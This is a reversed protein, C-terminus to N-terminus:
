RFTMKNSETHTDSPAMMTEYVYFLFAIIIFARTVNIIGIMDITEQKSMRLPAIDSISQIPVLKNLPKNNEVVVKSDQLKSLIESAPYVEGAWADCVVASEGWTEIKELKANSDLGIILFVHDGKPLHFIASETVPYDRKLIAQALYSFETCNGARFMKAFFTQSHQQIEEFRNFSPLMVILWTLIESILRLNKIKMKANIRQESDFDNADPHTTSLTLISRVENAIHCAINLNDFLEPHSKYPNAVEDISIIHTLPKNTSAAPSFLGIRNNM